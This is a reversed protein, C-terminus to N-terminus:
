DEFNPERDNRFAQVGELMDDTTTLLGFGQSEM